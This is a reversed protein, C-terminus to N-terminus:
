KSIITNAECKPFEYIDINKSRLDNFATKQKHNVRKDSQVTHIAM